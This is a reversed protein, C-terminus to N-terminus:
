RVLSALVDWWETSARLITMLEREDKAQFLKNQLEASFKDLAFSARGGNLTEVVTLIARGGIREISEATMPIATIHQMLNKNRSM